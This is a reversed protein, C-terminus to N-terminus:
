GETIGGGGEWSAWSKYVHTGDVQSAKRPFTYMSEQLSEAVKTATFLLNGGRLVRAQIKTFAKIGEWGEGTKLRNSSLYKLMCKKMLKSIGLYLNRLLEFTFLSYNRM